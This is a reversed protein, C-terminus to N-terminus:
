WFWEEKLIVYQFSSKLVEWFHFGGKGMRDVAAFCGRQGSVDAEQEVWGLM